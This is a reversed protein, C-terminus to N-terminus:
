SGNTIFYIHLHSTRAVCACVRSDAHHQWTARLAVDCGRPSARINGGEQWKNLYKFSSFDIIFMFLILFIISFNRYIRFIMVKLYLELNIRIQKRLDSISYDIM